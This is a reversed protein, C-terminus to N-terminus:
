DLSPPGAVTTVTATAALILGGLLLELRISARLTEVGRSDGSLLRPTLRLKNFAAACLLCAVLGLKFLVCRGYTSNWLAEFDGLLARLLMVGAAVLVGVVWIAVAGFRAAAAAIRPMAGSRAVILLPLLAGLWFAAGLLHLSQLLMPLANPNLAHAHGTWVFSTAASAAGLWGVWRTRDWSTGIAAFLLGLVRIGTARGAGAQWVMRLLSGDWMGSAHESMSGASVMVQVASGLVSLACLGLVIRRIKATESDAVLSSFCRRFFVAGSAGLTAAYVVTKVAILAADWVSLPV